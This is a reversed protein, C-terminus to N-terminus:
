GTAMIMILDIGFTYRPALCQIKATKASQGQVEFINTDRNVSLGREVTTM